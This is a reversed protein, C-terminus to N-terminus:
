SCAAAIRGQRLELQSSEHEHDQIAQIPGTESLKGYCYLFRRCSTFCFMEGRLGLSSRWLWRGARGLMQLAELRYACAQPDEYSTGVRSLTRCVEWVRPQVWGVLLVDWVLERSKLSLIGAGVKKGSAGGM